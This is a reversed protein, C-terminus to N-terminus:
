SLSSINPKSTIKWPLPEPVFKKGEILQLLGRAGISWLRLDGHSATTIPVPSLGNFYSNGFGAVSIRHPVSISFRQLERILFYTIEDSQCIVASCDTLQTQLFAQLAATSIPESLPGCSTADYWLFAHDDFKIGYDRLACVCGHFRQHGSLDDYRFIGGIKTHGEQLLHRTLLYGGSYDDARICPLDSLTNPSSSLFLISTGNSQLKRYLDTNPNPFATRTGEALIGRVPHELLNELIAREHSFCNETSFVQSQYGGLSFVSQIDWLTAPFTYNHAFPTLIAINRSAATSTLPNQTLYTGSGQRKEILGEKVLLSLSQRVTQRSVQYQQMLQQETPLRYIGKQIFQNLEKRLIDALTKYKSAM